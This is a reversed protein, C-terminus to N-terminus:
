WILMKTELDQAKNSLSKKKETGLQHLPAEAGLSFPQRGCHGSAGRQKTPHWGAASCGVERGEREPEQQWAVPGGPSASLSSM